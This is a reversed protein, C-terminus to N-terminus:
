AVRVLSTTKKFISDVSGPVFQDILDMDGKRLANTLRIGDVILQEEDPLSSGRFIHAKTSLEKTFGLLDSTRHQTVLKDGDYKIMDLFDRFFAANVYGIIVPLKSKTAIYTNVVDTMNEDFPNWYWYEIDKGDNDEYFTFGNTWTKKPDKLLPETLNYKNIIEGFLPEPKFLTDFHCIEHNFLTRMFIIGYAKEGSVQHTTLENSRFLSFNIEPSSMVRNKFDSIVSGTELNQPNDKRPTWGLNLLKIKPLVEEVKLSSNSQKIYNQLWLPIVKFRATDITLRRDSYFRDIELLKQGLPYQEIKNFFDIDTKDAQDRWRKDELPQTFLLAGASALSLGAGLTIGSRILPRRAMKRDLLYRQRQRNNLKSIDVITDARNRASQEEETGTFFEIFKM